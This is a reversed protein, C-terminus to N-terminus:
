ATSGGGAGPPSSRSASRRAREAAGPPCSCRRRRAPMGALGAPLQLLEDEGLQLRNCDRDIEEFRRRAFALRRLGARVAHLACRAVAARRHLRAPRCVVPPAAAPSSSHASCWAPWTPPRWRRCSCRRRAAAAAHVSSSLRLRFLLAASGICHGTVCVAVESGPTRACIRGADRIEGGWVHAGLLPPVAGGLSTCAQVERGRPPVDQAAVLPYSSIRRALLIRSPRAGRPRRDAAVRLSHLSPQRQAWVLVVQLFGITSSRPRRLLM